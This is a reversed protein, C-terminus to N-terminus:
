YTCFGYTGTTLFKVADDRGVHVPYADIVEEATKSPFDAVLQLVNAAKGPHGKREELARCILAM